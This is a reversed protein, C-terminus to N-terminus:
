QTEEENGLRFGQGSKVGLQGAQVKRELLPPPAFHPDHLSEFLARASREHVDLGMEDLIRMPGKPYGLGLELAVDLDRASALGDDLCQIVDNLYPVQLRQVLFGPQDKVELPQKGLAEALAVLAAVTADSSRQGRVVEVVPNRHVPEIFHMGGVRDPANSRAALGTVPHLATTTAIISDPALQGIRVIAAVKAEEEDPVAEIVVAADGFVDPEAPASVRDLAALRDGASQEADEALEQLATDILTVTDGAGNGEDTALRVALGQKVALAAINAAQRGHGFIGVTLAEEGTM